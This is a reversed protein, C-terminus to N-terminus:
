HVPGEGRKLQEIQEPTLPIYDGPKLDDPLNIAGMKHRVLRQVKFGFHEFIRRVLRNRGEYVTIFYWYGHSSGMNMKHAYKLDVRGIPGDELRMHHRVEDEQAKTLRSDTLCYYHRPIKFKPHTLRYVLDGDNSLLLLGETRFDLRGVTLLKFSLDRLRPLDFITPMGMDAKHSTLCRDPKHFLWYVLPPRDSKVVQGDVAVLDTLPDIQTGLQRVVQNNVAVRGNRIWSEAERRSAVGLQSLWKHIRVSEM